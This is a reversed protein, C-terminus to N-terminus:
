VVSEEGSEITRKKRCGIVIIALAAAVLVCGPLYLGVNPALEALADVLQGATISYTTCFALYLAFNKAGLILKVASLNTIKTAPGTIMFAVGSGASMGADLWAKLLPIVGGGCVYIPVGATTAMLVGFGPNGSFVSKAVSQPFYLEYLATLVIGLLFYPATIRMARGFNRVVRLLPNPDTDRSTVTDFDIYSYFAKKRYFLRVLLGAAIGGVLCAAFRLVAMPAGLAMTYVLLQPNLLISGMMFAALWDQPVKRRALSAVIPITGYMCLPSAIGLLAAPIVGFGGWRTRNLRVVWDGIAEKGFVSIISGLAMGIAWYFVIQQFQTVILNWLMITDRM